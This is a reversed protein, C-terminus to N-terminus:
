FPIDEYVPQVNQAGTMQMAQAVAPDMGQPMPASQPPMAQITPQPAPYMPQQYQPQQQPIYQQYQPPQPYQSIPPAYFQGQMPPMQPVQIQQPAQAVPQGGHAGDDALLKPVKFDEPLPVKLEYAGDVLECGFLRPNGMGWAQGTDPHSPWTWLHVTKGMLDNMNGTLNFLQMHLSPKEGSRQKAGAEMFTISKLNGDPLAFGIRINWVPNGDPWTKPKGPQRTQPNWERAQVEQMSVVTGTLELSFGDKEQNSYNWNYSAASGPNLAM